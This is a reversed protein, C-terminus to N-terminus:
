TGGLSRKLARVELFGSAANIGYEMTHAEDDLQRLLWNDTVANTFSTRYLRTHNGVPVLRWDWYSGELAGDLWVGRITWSARDLTYRGTFKVAPGIVQVNWAVDLTNGNVAVVQCDAVQPMWTEWSDFDTLKTWVVDVPAPLDTINTVQRLQGDSKTEFVTVEGRALWTDLEGSLSAALLLMLM